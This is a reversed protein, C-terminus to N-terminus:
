FQEFVARVNAPSAGTRCDHVLPAYPPAETGRQIREGMELIEPDGRQWRSLRRPQWQDM